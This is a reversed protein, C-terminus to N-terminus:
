IEVVALISIASPAVFGLLAFKKAGAIILIVLPVVIM